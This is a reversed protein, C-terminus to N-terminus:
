LYTGNRSSTATQDRLWECHGDKRRRVVQSEVSGICYQCCIVVSVGNQQNACRRGTEVLWDGAEKAHCDPHVVARM